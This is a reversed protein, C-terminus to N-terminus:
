NKPSEQVKGELANPVPNIGSWPALIGCARPWFGLVYFLFLITVINVKFIPWVLFYDKFFFCPFNLEIIAINKKKMVAYETVIFIIAINSFTCSYLILSLVPFSNHCNLLSIFFCQILTSVYSHFLLWLSSLISKTSYQQQETVWYSLWAQSKTVAHVAAHWAKRDKVIEWLKSLSMDVSDTIGDM